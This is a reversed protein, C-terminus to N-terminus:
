TQMEQLAQSLVSFNLRLCSTEWDFKLGSMESLLNACRYHATVTEQHLKNSELIPSYQYPHKTNGWDGSLFKPTNQGWTAVLVECIAERWMVTDHAHLKYVQLLTTVHGVSRYLGPQVWHVLIHWFLETAEVEHTWCQPNHRPQSLMTFM